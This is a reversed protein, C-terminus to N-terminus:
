ELIKALEIEESTLKNIDGGKNKLLKQINNIKEVEKLTNELPIINELKDKIKKYERNMGTIDKTELYKNWNNIYKGIKEISDVQDLFTKEINNSISDKIVKKGGKIIKATNDKILGNKNASKIVNDIVKSTSDILGGNKVATYAQSVNEFKGTIIGLASKGLGIASNVASKIGEKLGEKLLINKIDIVQDEVVNPLIARLGVDIGVNITKGLMSELFKNQSKEINNEINEQKVENTINNEIENVM